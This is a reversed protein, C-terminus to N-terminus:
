TREAFVSAAALADDILLADGEVMIELGALPVQAHFLRCFTVGDIVLTADAELDARGDRAAPTTWLGGGPGTLVLRISREPHATGHATMAFPLTDAVLSCLREVREVDPVSPPRGLAIRVDDAHMWMEFTVSMTRADLSRVDRPDGLADHRELGRVVRTNAERLAQQLAAHDHSLTAVRDATAGWHDYSKEDTERVSTPELRTAAQELRGVVHALLEGVRVDYTTRAILDSAHLTTVLADLDAAGRRHVEHAPLTGDGINALHRGPRRARRADVLTTARVATDLAFVPGDVLHVLAESLADAREALVPDAAIALEIVVIEDDDLADLAYAGLLEDDEDRRM